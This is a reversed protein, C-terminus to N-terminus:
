SHGNAMAWFHPAEPKSELVFEELGSPTVIELHSIAYELPRKLECPWSRNLLHSVRKVQIPSNARTGNEAYAVSWLRGEPVVVVPSFVQYAPEQWRQAGRVILDRLSNVAQSFKEFVESDGLSPDGSVTIGVQDLSKAIPEAKRYPSQLGELRRVLPEGLGPIREPRKDFVMGSIFAESAKRPVTHAVLPCHAGINKCEVALWLWGSRGVRKSGRIDFQRTKQTVPDVYTGSHECEVDLRVLQALIEMEFTFSSESLLCKDIDAATLPTTKLRAM